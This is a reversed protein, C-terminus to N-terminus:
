KGICFNSFIHDLMDDTYVEGVVTALEYQAERIEMSVLEHGARSQTAELARELCEVTRHLSDRCRVVTSALLESRAAGSDKLRHKLLDRLQPMGEGSRVSVRHTPRSDFAPTQAFTPQSIAADEPVLDIRTELLLVATGSASLEALRAADLQRDDDTLAASRCWLVLDASSVQESRYHQATTMIADTTTEWGATDILEVPIQDLMMTASVYDRTTGPIASVIAKEEGILANFLTSKGANPLGALVIRRKYGSPLRATSDQLLQSVVSAAHELRQQIEENTVFEIDEEVFDLGAELDGLLAILDTRLARLRETVSGGLQSLAKQLEEHDAAEIVGLVAEAQVLDIRGSLFARLTFEGRQAMRAGRRCLEALLADLLPECGILHFEGMVQGTYSRRTPWFSLAADFSVDDSPLCIRGPWRRPVRSERWALADEAPVFVSAILEACRSGSIRIIGRAAAGPASALAVITDNLDVLM